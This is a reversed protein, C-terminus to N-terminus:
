ESSATLTRPLLTSCPSSHRRNDCTSYGTSPKTSGDGAHRFGFTTVVMLTMPRERVGDHSLMVALVTYSPVRVCECTQNVLLPRCLPRGSKGPDYQGFAFREVSAGAPRPYM